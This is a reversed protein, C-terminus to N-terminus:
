ADIGSLRWLEAADSYCRAVGHRKALAQRQDARPDALAVLEVGALSSLVGAHLSGFRGLGALGVRLNPHSM